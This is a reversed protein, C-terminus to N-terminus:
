EGRSLCQINMVLGDCKWRTVNFGHGSRVVRWCLLDYERKILKKVSQGTSSLSWSTLTHRWSSCVSSLLTFARRQSSTSKGPKYPVLDDDGDIDSVYVM